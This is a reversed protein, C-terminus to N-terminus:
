ESWEEMHVTMASGPTGEVKNVKFFTRAQFLIEGEDKHHSLKKIDAGRQGKATIVYRTNGKETQSHGSKTSTSTFAREEVIKGVKYMKQVELPLGAGRYLTGKYKPMRSIATNLMKAYVHQQETWSGSRMAENVEVYSGNSYSKILACQFGDLPYGLDKAEQEFNKFKTALESPKAGLMSALGLFGEAQEEHIDLSKMIEKVQVAHQGAESRKADAIFKQVVKFAVVKQALAAQDELKKGAYSDNFQKILPLAAEPVDYSPMMGTNKAKELDESSVNAPLPAPKKSEALKQQLSEFPTPSAAKNFAAPDQAGWQIMKKEIKAAKDLQGLKVLNQKQADLSEVIKGVLKQKASPLDFKDADAILMKCVNRFYGSANKLKSVAGVQDVLHQKSTSPQFKSAFYPNLGHPHAEGKVAKSKSTKGGGGGPGFQGANGPQGRPHKSESWAEEDRARFGRSGPFYNHVIYRM